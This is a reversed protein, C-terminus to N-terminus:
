KKLTNVEPQALDRKCCAPKLLQLECASNSWPKQSRGPGPILGMDGANAPPNRDMAGGPMGQFILKKGLIKFSNFSRLFMLVYNSLKKKFILMMNRSKMSGVCYVQQLVSQTHETNSSGSQYLSFPSLPFSSCM